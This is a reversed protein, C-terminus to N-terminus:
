SKVVLIAFAEPVLVQSTNRWYAFVGRQGTPRHAAGFLHPILEISLGIRDVILFQNFDGFVLIPDWDDLNASLASCELAPYGILTAPRDAALQVWMSAGGGTDFQRALDYISAEALFRGRARWRMGVSNKVSYVDAVAFANSGATDVWQAAAGVLLGEPENSAHGAGNTFKDAELNDKAEAIMRALESQLSGFDQGIELSFPVFVKAKDVTAEPQAFDPADDSAESAETGYSATVGASTVGKWTEGTITEIRSIARYPAVSVDSTPIVTPDLFFPVAYGGETTTTSMARQAAHVQEVALREENTLTAEAGALYKGFARQYPPAGTSLILQAIAGRSNDKDTVDLLRAVHTQADEKKVREHPFTALELARMAGDRFLGPLEDARAAMTRYEELAWINQPIRSERAGVSSLRRKIPVRREADKAFEALQAARYEAADIAQEISKREEVLGDWEAQLDAELVSAGHETQIATLREHIEDRRAALEEITQMSSEKETTKSTVPTPASGPEPPTPASGPEPAVEGLHARQGAEDAAASESAGPALEALVTELTAVRDIMGAALAEEADLMRGQGFDSKVTEVDVGRGEAVAAVFREYHKDVQRQMEVQAETSLPQYPNREAKFQGATVLTMKVGRMELARSMDQHAGIVGISGVEGSLPAVIEDAASALHYGASAAWTNAVAIMPKQGRAALIEDHLEPIMTVAGGPTDYDFVITSVDPDKLAARLQQQIGEVSAMGSMETMMGARPVIPGHVPIVAVGAPPEPGAAREGIREAIEEATPREGSLREAIIDALLAMGSPHIAWPTELMYAIIRDYSHGSSREEGDLEAAARELDVDPEATTTELIWTDNTTDTAPFFVGDRRGDLRSRMLEDTISRMAASSGEYQGFPTPGFEFLHLERVSREPLGSPNHSRSGPRMVVDEQLVRFRFSSGYLGARLGPELERNYQTDLLDIEYVVERPTEELRLIPGLFKMAITPDRGHDFIARIRGNERITKAFSRPRIREMFHGEVASNVEAWEDFPALVGYVIGLGSAAQGSDSRERIEIPLALARTLDDRPPRSEEDDAEALLEAYDADSLDLTVYGSDGPAYGKSANYADIHTQLHRRCGAQDAPSLAPKMQMMRGMANRCGNVNAAGPKGDTVEHHPLSYSGKLDPDAGATVFTYMRRLVAQGADNPIAGVNKGADWPADVVPTDHPPIAPM